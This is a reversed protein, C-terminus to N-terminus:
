GKSSSLTRRRQIKCAVHSVSLQRKFMRVTKGLYSIRMAGSRYLRVGERDLSAIGTRCVGTVRVEEGEPTWVEPALIM